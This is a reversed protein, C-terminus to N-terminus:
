VDKHYPFRGLWFVAYGFLDAAYRPWDIYPVLVSSSTATYERYFHEKAAKVLTDGRRFWTGPAVKAANCAAIAQALMDHEAKIFAHQAEPVTDRPVHLLARYRELWDLSLTEAGVPSQELETM